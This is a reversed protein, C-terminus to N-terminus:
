GRSGLPDEPRHARCRETRAQRPPPRLRGRRGHGSPFRARRDGWQKTTSGVPRGHSAAAGPRHDGRRARPRRRGASRHQARDPRRPASRHDGRRQPGAGNPSRRHGLEGFLPGEGGSRLCDVARRAAQLSVGSDLLRKIVKLQVLDSYSYLRQSGSGRAKSISPHLLDTRAWYDLQRYTIGVISCVQPGRFATLREGTGASETSVSTTSVSTTSVSTTSLSDTGMSEDGAEPPSASTM